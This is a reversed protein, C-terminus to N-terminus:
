TGKKTTGKKTGPTVISKGDEEHIDQPRNKYYPLGSLNYIQYRM